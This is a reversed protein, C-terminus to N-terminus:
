RAEKEALVSLSSNSVDRRSGETHIGLVRRVLNRSDSWSELTVITGRSSLAFTDATVPIPDEGPDILVPQQSAKLFREIALLAGQPDDGCAAKGTAPQL